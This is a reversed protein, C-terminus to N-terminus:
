CGPCDWRGGGASLDEADEAGIAADEMRDWGDRGVAERDMRNSSDRMAEARMEPRWRRTERDARLIERGM